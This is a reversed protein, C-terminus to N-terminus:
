LCRFSVGHLTANRQGIGKGMCRFNPKNIWCVAPAPLGYLPARVRGTCACPLVFSNIEQAM